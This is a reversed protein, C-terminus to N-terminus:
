GAHQVIRGGIQAEQTCGESHEDVGLDDVLHLQQDLVM